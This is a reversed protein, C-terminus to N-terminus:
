KKQLGACAIILVESTIPNKKNAPNNKVYLM